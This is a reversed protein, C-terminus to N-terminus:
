PIGQNTKHDIEQGNPLLLPLPAHLHVLPVSNCLTFHPVCVGVGV